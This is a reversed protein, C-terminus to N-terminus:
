TGDGAGFFSAKLFLAEKKKEKYVLPKSCKLMEINLFYFANLFSRKLYFAVCFSVHMVVCISSGTFMPKRM